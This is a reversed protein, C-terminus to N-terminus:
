PIRICIIYVKTYKCNKGHVKKHSITTEKQQQEEVMGEEEGEDEEDDEEEERRDQGRPTYEEGSDSPL